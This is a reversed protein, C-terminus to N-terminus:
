KPCNVVLRLSSCHLTNLLHFLFNTKFYSSYWHRKCLSVLSEKPSPFKAYNQQLGRAWTCAKLSRLLRHARMRVRVRVRVKTAPAAAARSPLLMGRLHRRRQCRRRLLRRHRLRPLLRSRRRKLHRQLQRLCRKHYRRRRQGSKRRSTQAKHARSPARHTCCLSPVGTM